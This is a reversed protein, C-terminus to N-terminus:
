FILDAPLLSDKKSLQDYKGRMEKDGTRKYLDSLKLCLANFSHQFRAANWLKAPAFTQLTSMTEYMKGVRTDYQSRANVQMELAKKYYIIAEDYRKVKDFFAALMVMAYFDNHDLLIARKVCTVGELKREKFYLIGLNLWARGLNPLVDNIEELLVKASDPKSIMLLSAYKARVIINEDSNRKLNQQAEFMLRASREPYQTSFDKWLVSFVIDPSQVIANKYAEDARKVDYLHDSVIGLSLWYIAESSELMTAMKFHYLAKDNDGEALFHWAINHHARDDKPNLAIASQYHEIINKRVANTHRPMFDFYFRSATSDEVLSSKPLANELVVAQHIHYVAQQPNLAIAQTLIKEGESYNNNYVESVAASNLRDARQVQYFNIAIAGMSIFIVGLLLIRQWSPLSSSYMIKSQPRILVCILFFLLMLGGQEFFSSFTLEKVFLAILLCTMVATFIKQQLSIDTTRMQKILILMVCGFLFGYAIIGLIGKEAIVQVVTNNVRTTYAADPSKYAAYYLSFNGSGIGTVPNEAIMRGTNKFVSVRGTISRQQSVSQGAKITQFVPERIILALSIFVLGIYVLYKFAKRVTFVKLLVLTGFTLAFFIIVSLYIGRSFTVLISFLLFIIGIGVWWKRNDSTESQQIFLYINFALFVLLVASWDNSIQGFPAYLHKLNALDSFGEDLVRYRYFLFFAFTAIGLFAGAGGVFVKVSYDEDVTSIITYVVYSVLVVTLKSLFLFSNPPYLSFTYNIIESLAVLAVAIDIIRIVTVGNEGKSCIKYLFAVFLLAVMPYFAYTLNWFGCVLIALWGYFIIQRSINPLSILPRM